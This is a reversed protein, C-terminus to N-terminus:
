AALAFVASNAAGNGTYGANGTYRYNAVPNFVLDNADLIGDGNADLAELAGAIGRAQMNVRADITQKYGRMEHGGSIQGDQNWDVVGIGDSLPNEQGVWDTAEAFGDDDIDVAVGTFTQTITKYTGDNQRESTTYNQGIKREDITGSGDLDIPLAVFTPRAKQKVKPKLLPTALANDADLEAQSLASADGASQALRQGKAKARQETTKGANPDIPTSSSLVRPTAPQPHKPMTSQYPHTNTMTDHHTHSMFTTM